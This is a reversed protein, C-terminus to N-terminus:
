YVFKNFEELEHCNIYAYMGMEKKGDRFRGGQRIVITDKNYRWFYLGDIFLFLFIVPKSVKECKDIKIYPVMTTDYCDKYVNRSKLEYFYKKCEFDFNDFKSLKWINITRNELEKLSELVINESTAGFMRDIELQAM